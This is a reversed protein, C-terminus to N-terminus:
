AVEQQSKVSGSLRGTARGSSVALAGSQGLTQEVLATTNSMPYFRKVHGTHGCQFYMQPPSCPRSHFIFSVVIHADRQHLEDKLLPVQHPQVLNLHNHLDFYKPHASLNQM